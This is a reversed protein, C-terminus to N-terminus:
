RDVRSARDLNVSADKVRRRKDIACSTPLSSNVRTVALPIHYVLLEVLGGGDLSPDDHDVLPLLAERFGRGVIHDATQSLSGRVHTDGAELGLGTDLPLVRLRIDDRSQSPESHLHASLATEGVHVNEDEGISGGIEILLDLM